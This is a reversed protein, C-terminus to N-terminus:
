LVGRLKNEDNMPMPYKFPELTCKITVTSYEKKPNWKDVTFRGEYWYDPEELLRMRLRKCHIKSLIDTYISMWEPSHDARTQGDSPHAVNLRPNLVLFDFSAERDGYIGNPVGNNDTYVDTLDLTGNMGPIDVFKTRAKPPPITPRSTPVLNWTTWTNYDGIELAYMNVGPIFQEGM